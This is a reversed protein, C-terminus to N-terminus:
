PVLVAAGDIEGRRVHDLAGNAESVSGSGAPLSRRTLTLAQPM